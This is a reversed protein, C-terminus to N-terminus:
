MLFVLYGSMLLFNSDDADTAAKVSALAHKFAAAQVGVETVNYRSCAVDADASSGLLRALQEQDTPSCM